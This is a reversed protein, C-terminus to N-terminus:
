LVLQRALAYKEDDFMGHHKMVADLREEM